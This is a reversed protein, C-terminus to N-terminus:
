KKTYSGGVTLIWHAAFVVRQDNRHDDRPGLSEIWLFISPATAATAATAAATVAVAAVAAVCRGPMTSMDIAPRATRYM